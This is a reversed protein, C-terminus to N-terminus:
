KIRKLTKVCEEKYKLPEKISILKGVKYEKLQEKIRDSKGSGSYYIINFKSDSLRELVSNIPSSIRDNWIPTGLYIEDYKKINLDENLASKYNRMALYGGVIISLIRNKPIDKKPTVKVIDFGEKKLVDAIFDGNGSHSYYIFAKKM